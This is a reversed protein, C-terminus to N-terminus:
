RDLRDLSGPPGESDGGGSLCFTNPGDEYSMLISVQHNRDVLVSYFPNTCNRYWVKWGIEEPTSIILCDMSIYFLLIKYTKSPCIQMYYFFLKTSLLILKPQWLFYVVNKKITGYVVISLGEVKAFVGLNLIHQYFVCNEIIATIYNRRQRHKSLSEVCVFTPYPRWELTGYQQLSFPYITPSFSKSPSWALM